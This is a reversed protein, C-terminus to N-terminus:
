GALRDVALATYHEVDDVPFPEFLSQFTLGSLSGGSRVAVIDVFADVSLGSITMSVTVRYAVLEDGVPVLRLPGVTVDDITVGGPLSESPDEPNEFNETVFSQVADRFCTDVGPAAFRVMFDEAASPEVITVSQEVTQDDPGVFDPSSARPGGLDLLNDSTGGACETVTRQYELEQETLEDEEVATWGAPFDDLVLLASEAAAQEASAATGPPDTPPSTEPATAGAGNAVAVLGVAAMALVVRARRM